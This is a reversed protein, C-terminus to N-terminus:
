SVRPPYIMSSRSLSGSVPSSASSSLTLSLTREADFFRTSLTLTSMICFGSSSDSSLGSFSSASEQNICSATIRLNSIHTLICIELLYFFLYPFPDLQIIYDRLINRIYLKVHILNRVEHIRVEVMILPTLIVFSQGLGHDIIIRFILEKRRRILLSVTFLMDYDKNVNIIEFINNGYIIYLLQEIRHRLSEKIFRRVARLFPGHGINIFGNIFKLLRFVEIYFAASCPCFFQCLLKEWLFLILVKM